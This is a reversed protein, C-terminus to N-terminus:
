HGQPDTSQVIEDARLLTGQESANPFPTLNASFTDPVKENWPFSRYAEARRLGPFLDRVGKGGVVKGEQVKGEQCRERGLPAEHLSRRKGGRTSMKSSLGINVM